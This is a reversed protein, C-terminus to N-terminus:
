TPWVHVHADVYTHSVPRRLTATKREAPFTECTFQPRWAGWSPWNVGNRRSCNEEGGSRGESRQIADIEGERARKRENEYEQYIRCKKCIEEDDDTYICREWTLTCIPRSLDTKGLEGCMHAIMWLVAGIMILMLIVVFGVCAYGIVNVVLAGFETLEM